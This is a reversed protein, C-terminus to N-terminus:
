CSGSTQLRAFRSKASRVIRVVFSPIGPIAEKRSTALAACARSPWALVQQTVNNWSGQTRRIKLRNRYKTRWKARQNGSPSRVSSRKWAMSIDFVYTISPFATIFRCLRCFRGEPRGKVCVKVCVKRATPQTTAPWSVCNKACGQLSRQRLEISSKVKLYIIGM